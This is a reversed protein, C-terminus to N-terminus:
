KKKRTSVKTGIGVGMQQLMELGQKAQAGFPGSPDLDIAKQYAELTGPLIIPIYKDQEKKYEMGGVMAAGLLYWTQASKPDIETAKKLPEIAEKMKNANYLVIGMNRWYGAAGPPDIEAAKQYAQKTEEIKGQRALVNGLNNYYGAVDPKAAIAKQYAEVAEENKGQADYSEGLKAYILHLNPDKEGAAKQAAQFENVAKSADESLKQKKADRQDAAATRLDDRDVKVQDLAAVGAAFHVKMGEFKNKEEEQKKAAEQAVAGGQAVLEKFNIDKQTPTGADARLNTEWVKQDKVKVTLIYVGPRMNRSNYRGDKDTKVEYKMGQDNVFSLTVDPFPKGAQDLVTGIVSANPIQATATTATGSVVAALGLILAVAMWTAKSRKM